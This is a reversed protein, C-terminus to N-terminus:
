AAKSKSLAKKSDSNKRPSRTRMASASSAHLVSDDQSGRKGKIWINTKKLRPQPTLPMRPSPPARALVKQAEPRESRPPFILLHLFLRLITENDNFYLLLKELLKKNGLGVKYLPDGFILEEDFEDENKNVDVMKSDKEVHWFTRLWSPEKEREGRAKTRAKNRQVNSILDGVVKSWHLAGGADADMLKLVRDDTIIDFRRGGKKQFLNVSLIDAVSIFGLPFHEGPNKYWTLSNTGVVFYRKEWGVFNANKKMLFGSKLSTSTSLDSLRNHHGVNRIAELLKKKQKELEESGLMAIGKGFNIFSRKKRHKKVNSM